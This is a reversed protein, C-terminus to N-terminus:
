LKTEFDRFRDLITDDVRIYRRWRKVWSEGVMRKRIGIGMVRGDSGNRLKDDDYNDLLLLLYHHLM